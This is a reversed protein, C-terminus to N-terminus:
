KPAVFVATHDIAGSSLAGGDVHVGGSSSRDMPAAVAASAGVDVVAGDSPAADMRRIGHVVSRKRAAASAGGPELKRAYMVRNVFSPRRLDPGPEMSDSFGSYPSSPSTLARAALKAKALSALPNTTETQLSMGHLAAFATDDSDSTRSTADRNGGGKGGGNGGGGSGGGHGTGPM